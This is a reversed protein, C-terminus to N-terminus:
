GLAKKYEEILLESDECGVSIRVLNPDLGLESLMGRGSETSVLEYHALYMYLMNLTFETGFSPGKLLALSDYFQEIPVGPEITIVGCHLNPDRAIKSFNGHNEESGSWHVANIKPHSDFFKALVAANRGIRQVREKYGDIEFAMRELDRIYPKELFEASQNKLDAFYPSSPNLILAGMMTDANGSAFKTLSEVIVDAFPSLDVVASGAVSVDAILPIGYKGLIKKLEPYDPVQILPNTPSETLIAAVRDGNEELFKSLEQLDVVDHFIHSGQSYKELIRINDVYLWGLRLWIDKGKKRRVQDLVRFSAYVANMGSTSLSVEVGKGEYLDSLIKIIHSEAGQHIAEEKYISPVLGKKFLFDEAKRSSVLCGTHQIFSLVKSEKEPDRDFVLTVIGEDELIQSGRLEFLEIIQNAVKQSNVIVQPGEIGKQERNYDLIKEVFAHAIFRPYGAKLRSLTEVRKEEYGIVDQVKPLSMSVAHVNSYPIREGCITRFPEAVEKLM